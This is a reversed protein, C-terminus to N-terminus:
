RPPNGQYDEQVRAARPASDLLAGVLVIEVVVVGKIRGGLGSWPRGRQYVLRGGQGAPRRSGSGSRWPGGRGGWFMDVTSRLACCTAWSSRSDSCMTCCDVKISERGGAGAPESRAPLM